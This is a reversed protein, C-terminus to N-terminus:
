RWGRKEIIRLLSDRCALLQKDLLGLLDSSRQVDDRRVAVIVFCAADAQDADDPVFEWFGPSWQLRGLPVPATEPLPVTHKRVGLRPRFGPIGAYNDSM